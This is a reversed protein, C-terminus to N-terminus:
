RRGDRIQYIRERSLGTMSALDYVSTGRAMAARITEHLVLQATQDQERAQRAATVAGAVDAPRHIAAWKASQVVRERSQEALIEVSNSAPDRPVYTGLRRGLSKMRVAPRPASSKAPTDWTTEFEAWAPEGTPLYGTSPDSMHEWLVRITEGEGRESALILVQRRQELMNGDALHYTLYAQHIEGPTPLTITPTTM